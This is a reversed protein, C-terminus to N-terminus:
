PVATSNGDEGEPHPGPEGPGTIARERPQDSAPREQGPAGLRVRRQMDQLAPVNRGPRARANGDEAAGITGTGNSSGQPAGRDVSRNASKSPRSTARHVNTDSGDDVSCDTLRDRPGPARVCDDLVPVDPRGEAPADSAPSAPTAASNYLPQWIDGSRWLRFLLVVLKRATATIARKKANKGGREALRLGWRRLDCDQGFPGLIHHACQTLLRRLFRNGSKSIGLQPDLSGSRDQRPVLGLYAAAFRGNRFRAADEMVLVFALATIPGVGHVQDVLASEPFDRAAIEEIQKDYADIQENITRLAVFLGSVGPRLSEDVENERKVFTRSNGRRIPHGGAKCLGRITNILKTRARVLVDRAKLSAMAVDREASRHKVPSLLAKDAAALRALMEADNQDNKRVNSSIAQVKRPNAVVVEFGLETLLRSTWGSQAGAELAVLDFEEGVFAKTLAVPTMRFRFRKLVEGGQVVCAESVKDGLDVGVVISSNKDM